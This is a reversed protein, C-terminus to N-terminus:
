GMSKVTRLSEIRKQADTVRPDNPYLTTFDGFTSIAKSAV